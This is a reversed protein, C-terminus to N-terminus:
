RPTSPRHSRASQRRWLAQSQHPRAGRCLPRQPRRQGRARRRRRACDRRGVRRLRACLRGSRGEGRAPRLGAHHRLDGAQAPWQRVGADRVPPIRPVTRRRRRRRARPRHAQAVKGRDLGARDILSSIRERKMRTIGFSITTSLRLYPTRGRNPWHSGTFAASFRRCGAVLRSKASHNRPTLAAM